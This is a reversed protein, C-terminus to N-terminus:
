KNENLMKRYKWIYNFGSYITLLTIIFTAWFPIRNLLATCYYFSNCYTFVKSVILVILILIIVVL